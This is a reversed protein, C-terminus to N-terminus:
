VNRSSENLRYQKLYNRLDGCEMYPLVILPPYRLSDESVDTDWCIGILIMVNPHDLDKMQLGEQIFENIVRKKATDSVIFM